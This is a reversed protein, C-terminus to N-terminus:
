RAHRDKLALEGSIWRWGEDWFGESTRPRGLHEAKDEWARLWGEAELLGVRHEHVLRRFIGTREVQYIREPLQHQTPSKPLPEIPIDEEFSSGM